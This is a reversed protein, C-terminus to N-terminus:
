KISDKISDYYEKAVDSYDDGDVDVKANMAIVNEDTFTATVKNVIDEVEPHAKLADNRIIPALYYPPWCNKDDTLILFDDGALSGETTYVSIADVEGSKAAQFTLTHDMTVTDKFTATGYVEQLRDFIGSQEYFEGNAAFKLESGHSWLDSFTKIGYKEATTKLMALGESDNVDSHALWTIDFKDAYGKKVENYCEEPDYIPEEGLRTILGTGTYEPYFDIEDNVIADHIVSSGLQLKREVKVGADELALAYVEAIVISETFDKSGIVLPESDGSSKKSCGAFLNVTLLMMM